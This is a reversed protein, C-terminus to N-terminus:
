SGQQLAALKYLAHDNRSFMLRTESSFFTQVLQKQQADLRPTSWQNFLHKAILIHTFGREKLRRNIERASHSHQVITEFLRDGFRIDRDSYYGRGGLYIGLLRADKNLTKNAFQM